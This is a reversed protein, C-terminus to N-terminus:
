ASAAARYMAAVKEGPIEALINHIACFVFGGDQKMYRTIERAESEVDAVGLLPLTTQTNVGGGWLTIRNRAKDKWEKYSHGGATWQVPNLIDFGAAVINDIIDYIAGCSHFFTKVNPAMAHVADNFRRYHPQFLEEFVRPPAITQMQIGWDDSNCMYIDIYPGIDPLFSELRRVAHNLTLEHLEAVFEPETLCLLPFIGIGYHAGIGIDARPGDFFIARDTSERARRCHEIIRRKEAEPLTWADFEKKLKKLDPKPIDANLDVPQGGHEEDFVFSNLPMVRGGDQAINGNELVRFAEPHQVCAALRGNFGYPRWLGPQEYANTYGVSATAVDCGLADLVDIDPLALMQGTDCVRPPRPPLGLARVLNPYAFCSISTSGMGGLDMPVRDTERFATAALLRERPTPM